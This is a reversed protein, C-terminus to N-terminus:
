RKKTARLYTIEPRDNDSEPAIRKSAKQALDNGRIMQPESSVDTPSDTPKTKVKAKLNALRPALLVETDGLDDVIRQVAAQVKISPKRRELEALATRAQEAGILAINVLSKEAYDDLTQSYETAQAAQRYSAIAQDSLGRQQYVNGLRFLARRNGADLDLIAKFSDEAAKYNKAAYAADAENALGDLSISSLPSMLALPGLSQAYSHSLSFSLSLMMGAVWVGGLLFKKM